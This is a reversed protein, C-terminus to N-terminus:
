EDGEAMGGGMGRAKRRAEDGGCGRAGKDHVVDVKGQGAGGRGLDTAGYGRLDDDGAEETGGVVVACVAQNETEAFVKRGGRREGISGSERGAVDTVGDEVVGAKAASPGGAM